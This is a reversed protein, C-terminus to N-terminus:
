WYDQIKTMKVNETEFLLGLFIKFECVNLDKWQIIRSKKTTKESLFLDVAYCNTEKVTSELLVDDELLKFYGTPSNNGPIPVHLGVAHTFLFTKLM